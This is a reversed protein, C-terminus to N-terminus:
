HNAVAMNERRANVLKDFSEAAAQQLGPTVHSYTDLTIQISAHGLREQVIKPHIGQKLMLSAHTHRCDHFRIGRLGCRRVLKIWAHTVSSPLLPSNDFHCFILDDDGPTGKLAEENDYHQRLVICASPPLPIMRRGRRTKPQRFVIEGTALQHLSRNISIQALMLNADGWKLALLESRRMGTFLALYFLPYYPTLRAAELVTKLGDENLTHMEPRHFHPPDVADAVNRVLLGHKVATALAAHIIGHLDRVTRASLGGKGDCRGGTLKESYFRQLHEPKLATLTLGGVSPVIQRNIYQERGEYTKPSLNPRVYDKLWQELYEGLTTNSPKIFIGNDLQTLLERLRKKAEEKTGKVTTWQYQYKGTSSDKGLSIKISYSNKGRKKIHNKM